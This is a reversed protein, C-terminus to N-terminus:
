LKHKSSCMAAHLLPQRYFAINKNAMLIVYTGYHIRKPRTVSIKRHPFASPRIAPYTSGDMSADEGVACWNDSLSVM